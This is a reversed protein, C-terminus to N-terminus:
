YYVFNIGLKDDAKIDCLCDNIFKNIGNKGCFELIACSTHKTFGSINSGCSLKALVDTKNQYYEKSM